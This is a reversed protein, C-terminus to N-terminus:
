VSEEITKNENNNRVVGIYLEIGNEDGDLIYVFNFGTNDLTLLVNEFAERHPYDEDYSLQSIQYFSYENVALKRSDDQGTLHVQLPKNEESEVQYSLLMSVQAPNMVLNQIM